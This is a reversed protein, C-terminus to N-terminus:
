MTLVRRSGVVRQHAESMFKGFRPLNLVVDQKDLYVKKTEAWGRSTIKRPDVLVPDGQNYEKSLSSEAPTVNYAMYQIGMKRAPGGYYEEAAWDLGLPVVQILLSGPRLFLFHTVAAGHVAMMADAAALVMHIDTLETSRKPNLLEVDFGVRRCLRLIDKFHLLRRSRNRVLIVLKPRSRTPQGPILGPGTQNPLRLAENLLSNFDAIGKRSPMLNPDITLEGHIRLGVIMEAFCHVRKDKRFDVIEHKTIKELVRRYKTFWWSHYEVVVLVVDGSFREATIYLPIMGDNFEHYVNGTYGGTSFVIGAAEHTVECDKKKMIDSRQLAGEAAVVSVAAAPRLAIEDVTTMIGKEWKRTYPRIREEKAEPPAGRLVIAKAAVDTRIDGRMYCVDTRFHRRIMTPAM